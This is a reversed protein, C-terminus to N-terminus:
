HRRHTELKREIAALVGVSAIVKPWAQEIQSAVSSLSLRKSQGEVAITAADELLVTLDAFRESIEDRAKEDM